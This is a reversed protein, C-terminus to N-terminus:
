LTFCSFTLGDYNIKYKQTKKLETFIPTKFTWLHLFETRYNFYCFRHFYVFGKNYPITIYNTTNEIIKKCMLCEKRLYDM